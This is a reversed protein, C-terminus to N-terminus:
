MIMLFSCVLVGISIALLAIGAWRPKRKLCFCAFIVAAVAFLKQNFGLVNFIHYLAPKFKEPLSGRIGIVSVVPWHLCNYVYFMLLSSYCCILTAIALPWVSATTMTSPKETIEM